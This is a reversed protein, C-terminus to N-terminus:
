NAIRVATAQEALKQPDFLWGNKVVRWIKETNHIDILPDSDLLVIDALKGQELSGFEQSGVSAAAEQTALRIVELPSLGAQVFRQMEWQLSLGYFVEPNAVDTGLLLHAGDARAREISALTGHVFGRLENTSITRFWSASRAYDLFQPPVMGRLKLDELREPEERLLLADGGTAAVTPDWRTGSAALMQLIDDFNRNQFGNHELSFFGLTVSKVIEKPTKGHGAVPLGVRLAEEAVARKLPWSLSEYAKILTAGRAKLCRVYARASEESDILLFRDGFFGHEGELIEGSYFYRPLAAGTLESRDSLAGLMSVPGGVDRVSTVGYAVFAERNTGSSHVHLDFLGPIAFRGNADVSVANAPPNKEADNGLRRIRGNEILLSRPPTFTGSQLDLIRANRILLPSATQRAINLRTPIEERPGGSLPQRWIHGTVAYIVSSGDPTLSFSDGGDSSVERADADSVSGSAFPAKLIAYNRRFVLWKGDPSIRIDSAHRAFHTVQEPKAGKDLALRYLNGVGSTDSSYYIARGEPSFQPRPWWLSAESLREHAGDAVQFCEISQAFGPNSVALIRQGDSSWSLQSIGFPSAVVALSPLSIVTRVRGTTMDVLQLSDQGYQSRVYALQRGDPSFAPEGELGTDKSIREAHATGNVPQKWLFGEAGFV